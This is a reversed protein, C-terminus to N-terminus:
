VRIKVMQYANLGRQYHNQLRVEFLISPFQNFNNKFELVYKETLKIVRIFAGVLDIKAM